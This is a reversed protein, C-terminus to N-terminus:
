IIEAIIAGNALSTWGMTANSGMKLKPPGVLIQIKAAFCAPHNTLIHKRRILLKFRTIGSIRAFDCKPNKWPLPQPSELRLTGCIGLLNPKLNFEHQTLWKRLKVLM